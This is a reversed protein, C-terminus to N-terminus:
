SKQLCKPSIPILLAWHNSPFPMQPCRNLQTRFLNIPSPITHELEEPVIQAKTQSKETHLNFCSSFARGHPENHTYSEAEQHAKAADPEHRMSALIELPVDGLPLTALREESIELDTYGPHRTVDKLCLLAALVVARRVRFTQKLWNKPIKGPGVYTVAITSALVSMPRPVLKGSLMRVVDPLNLEYTTVNGSLGQQLMSQDLQKAWLDRPYLKYVYCRPHYISILMREPVTLQSIELPIPGIWMCNALSLPPLRNDSLARICDDCVWGGLGAGKDILHDEVLLMDQTTRHAPHPYNSVLRGKNPIEKLQYHKGQSCFLERACVICTASKIADNSTAKRFARHCQRVEEDTPLQLFDHAGQAENDALRQRKNTQRENALDNTRKRQELHSAELTVRRQASQRVLELIVSQPCERIAALLDDKSRRQSAPITVEHNRLIELIEQKSLLNINILQEDSM